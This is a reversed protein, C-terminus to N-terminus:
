VCITIVIRTTGLSCFLELLCQCFCGLKSLSCMELFHRNFAKQFGQGLFKVNTQQHMNVIYLDLERILTM